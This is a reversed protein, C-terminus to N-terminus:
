LLEKKEGFLVVEMNHQTRQENKMGCDYCVRAGKHGYPRTEAVKGCETCATDEESCIITRGNVRQSM